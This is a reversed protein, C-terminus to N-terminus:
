LRKLQIIHVLKQTPNNLTITSCNEGVILRKSGSSLILLKRKMKATRNSAKETTANVQTNYM